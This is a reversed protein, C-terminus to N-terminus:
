SSVQWVRVRYEIPLWDKWLVSFSPFYRVSLIEMTLAVKDGHMTQDDTYTTIAANSWWIRTTALNEMVRAM